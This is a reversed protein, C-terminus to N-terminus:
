ILNHPKLISIPSQLAKSEAKQRKGKAKEKRGVTRRLGSPAVPSQFSLQFTRL